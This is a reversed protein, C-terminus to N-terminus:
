VSRGAQDQDAEAQPEGGLTSDAPQGGLTSDAPEGDLTLDAPAEAAQRRPRSWRFRRDLHALSEQNAEDM